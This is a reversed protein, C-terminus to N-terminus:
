NGEYDWSWGLDECPGPAVSVDIRISSPEDPQFREETTRMAEDIAGEQSVGGQAAFVDLGAGLATEDVLDVKLYGPDEARRFYGEGIAATPNQFSGTWGKERLRAQILIEVENFSTYARWTGSAHTCGIIVAREVAVPEVERSGAPLPVDALAETMNARWGWTAAISLLFVLASAAGIALGGVALPPIRPVFLAIILVAFTVPVLLWVLTPMAGTGEIFFPLVMLIPGPVVVLLLSKHIGSPREQGATAGNSQRRFLPSSNWLISALIGLLAAAPAIIPFTLGFLPDSAVMAGWFSAFFLMVAIAAGTGRDVSLNDWPRLAAILLTGIPLLVWPWTIATFIVDM